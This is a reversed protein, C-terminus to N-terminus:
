GLRHYNDATVEFRLEGSSFFRTIEDLVTRGQAFRSQVTGGAIHPTLLVNDLGFFESDAPLPEEDFVDLGARLRGSKVEALLADQDTVRSRATNVVVAGDRLLALQEAGIMGETERTVPAHISLVDSTACLEDLDCLQVDLTAADEASVYPDFARMGTVGLGRMMQAYHRGVRSLSVLGVRQARVSEGLLGNGGAHWDRSAQFRRDHVVINRLLALTMTVSMEAVAEAMAEAGGQALRYGAGLTEAPYLARVSAATHVALKLRPGALASPDFPRTSWSTILVDFDHAVNAPVEVTAEGGTAFTLTGLEALAQQTPEDYLLQYEDPRIAVYISLPTPM